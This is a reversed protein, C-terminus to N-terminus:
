IFLLENKDLKNLRGCSKVKLGGGLVSRARTRAAALRMGVDVGRAGLRGLGTARGAEAAEAGLRLDFAVSLASVPHSASQHSFHPAM